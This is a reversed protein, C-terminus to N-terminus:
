KIFTGKGSPSPTDSGHITSHCDTCRTYYTAMQEPQGSLTHGRHCQMCLMTEQTVLLARAASGHPRHCKDCDEMLDAHGYAFPSAKEAHCKMCTEKVDVERLLHEGSTGHPNHCDTCFLKGEDVPHHSPLSFEARTKEHCKYCMQKTDRPAVILDVGAHVNHCDNCAVGGQAHAGANWDHLNFTSNASHCRLCILSKAAPPLTNIDILTKFKCAVQDAERNDGSLKEKDLGEVAMSGPGHCSECDVMPMGSESSMQAGMTSAEFDKRLKDHYHCATLCTDTGIYNADLRGVLLKEYEKIPLIPKSQKITECGAILLIATLLLLAILVGRQRATKDKMNGGNLSTM